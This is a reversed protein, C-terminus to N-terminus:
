SRGAFQNATKVALEASDGLNKGVKIVISPNKETFELLLKRGIDAENGSLRVVLPIRL